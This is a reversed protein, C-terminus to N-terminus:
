ETSNDIIEYLEAEQVWKVWDGNSTDIPKIEILSPDTRISRGVLKTNTPVMKEARRGTAYVEANDYIYRTKGELFSAKIESESMHIDM